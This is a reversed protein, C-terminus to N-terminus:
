RPRGHGFMAGPRDVIGTSVNVIRRWRRELMFPLFTFTLRVPADVNVAFAGADPYVLDAAVVLARGGHAGVMAATEELQVVSRALLAVVAGREALQLAVARGIGRGAGTVLAVRGDFLVTM